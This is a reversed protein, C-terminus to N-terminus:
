GAAKRRRLEVGALSPTEVRALPPRGRKPRNQAWAECLERDFLKYSGMNKHPMGARCWVDVCGPSIRFAQALEDKTLLGPPSPARLLEAVREALAPALARVLAGITAEDLTM